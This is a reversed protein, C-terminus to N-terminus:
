FLGLENFVALRFLPHPVGCPDMEHGNSKLNYPFFRQLTEWIRSGLIKASSTLRNKDRFLIVFSKRLTLESSFLTKM